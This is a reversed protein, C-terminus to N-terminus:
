PTEEVHQGFRDVRQDTASFGSSSAIIVTIVGAVVTAAPIGIVLLLELSWISNKKSM